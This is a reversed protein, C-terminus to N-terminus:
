SGPFERKLTAIIEGVTGAIHGPDYPIHQIGDLNSFLSTDKEVLILARDFGLRGQFLGAEHVVNQRTRYSGDGVEDSASFVLVAFTNTDLFNSLIDRISHGARSGTEFSTVDYGHVNQLQNQLVLWDQSTGGHGVFIRPKPLPIPPPEPDRNASAAEEFIAMIRETNARTHASVSVQTRFLDESVLLSTRAILGGGWDCSTSLVSSDHPRRLDAFFEDTSSHSWGENGTNVELTHFDMRPHYGPDNLGSPQYELPVDNRVDIKRVEGIEEFAAKLVEPPFHTRLFNVRKVPM